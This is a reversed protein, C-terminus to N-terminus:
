LGSYELLEVRVDGEEVLVNGVGPCYYKLEDLEPDLTSQDRTKLCGEFTGAPVTVTEDVSVVEAFDEAEGALFEQRYVDGVKPSGLMVVGPLAGDVGAEWAGCSCVVEGNEYEKTDEGLYWVHGSGDQAYWDWTDEVMEDDLYGTDRVVRATTGFVDKTEAEVTIEIREVGDETHAEYVWTAGVPAPFLPNDINASLDGVVIDPEYDGDPDLPAPNDSGSGGPDPAPDESSCGFAGLVLTLAFTFPARTKM